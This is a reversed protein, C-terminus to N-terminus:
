GSPLTQTVVRRGRAVYRGCRPLRPQSKDSFPRPSPLPSWAGTKPRRVDEARISRFCRRQHGATRIKWRLQHGPVTLIVATRAFLRVTAPRMPRSRRRRRPRFGAVLSRRNGRPHLGNKRSRAPPVPRAQPDPRRDRRGHPQRACVGRGGAARRRCSRQRQGGPASIRGGCSVRWFSRLVWHRAAAFALTIKRVTEAAPEFRATEINRITEPSIGAATGFDARTWDLLARAARLQAPSIM